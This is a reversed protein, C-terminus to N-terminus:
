VYDVLYKPKMITWENSYEFSERTFEKDSWWLEEIIGKEPFVKLNKICIDIKTHLHLAEPTPHVISNEYWSFEWDWEWVELIKSASLLM